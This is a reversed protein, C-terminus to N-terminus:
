GEIDREQGHYFNIEQPNGKVENDLYIDWGFQIQHRTNFVDRYEIVGAFYFVESNPNAVTTQFNVSKGPPIVYFPEEANEDKMQFASKPPDEFAEARILRVSKAATQGINHVTQTIVLFEVGESLTEKSIQDSTLTFTLYARLKDKELSERNKSDEKFAEVSEKLSEAQSQFLIAHKRLLIVVFVTLAATIAEAVEGLSIDRFM